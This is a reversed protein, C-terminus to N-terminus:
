KTGKLRALTLRWKSWPPGDRLPGRPRHRHAPTAPAIMACAEASSQVAPLEAVATSDVRVPLVRVQRVLKRRIM